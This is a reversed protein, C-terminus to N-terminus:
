RSATRNRNSPSFKRMLGAAPKSKQYGRTVPIVVVKKQYAEVAAEYKAVPAIGGPMERRNLQIQLAREIQRVDGRENRTHFVSAVGRAGARGTRGARHISIVASIPQSFGVTRAGDPANRRLRGEVLSTNAPLGTCARKSVGVNTGFSSEIM